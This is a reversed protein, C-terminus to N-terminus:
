QPTPARPSPHRGPPDTTTHLTGDPRTIVMARDPLLEIHWRGEHVLHHHHSCLPVLNSLDTPGGQEWHDIHHAQCHSLPRDCGAWACTAHVARLADWPASTATRSRRGVNVPVGAPDLVVRRLVADCCLRRVARDSLPSGDGTEAITAPHRSRELTARDVVVTVHPLHRGRSGSSCALEVLAEAALNTNKEREGANALAAMQQEIATTLAEYREPDLRGSLHGMGTRGDLWWRLESDARAREGEADDEDPLTSDDVARRLMSDFTDAPLGAGAAALPGADLRGLHDDDLPGLRRVLADLHDPGLDGSGMAKALEQSRAALAARAAEQRATVSRVRGTGLLAERAGAGLGDAALEDARAGARVIAGEAVGQLGRMAAIFRDLLDAGFPGLDVGGVVAALRGTLEEVEEISPADGAANARLM